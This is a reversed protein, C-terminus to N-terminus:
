PGQTRSYMQLPRRIRTRQNELGRDKNEAILKCLGATWTKWSGNAFFQQGQKQRQDAFSQQGQKRSNTQLPSSDM